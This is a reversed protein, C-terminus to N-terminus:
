LAVPLDLTEAYSTLASARQIAALLKNRWATDHVAKELTEDEPLKMHVNGVGVVLKSLSSMEPEEEGLQLIMDSFSAPRIYGGARYRVNAAADSPDYKYCSSLLKFLSHPLHIAGLGHQDCILQRSSNPMCQIRRQPKSEHRNVSKKCSKGCKLFRLLDNVSALCSYM